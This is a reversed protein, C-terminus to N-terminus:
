VTKVGYVAMTAIDGVQGAAWVGVLHQGRTIDISTDTSDFSGDYTVDLKNNPSSDVYMYFTPIPPSGPRNTSVVVKTINWNSPGANPGISVQGGGSSNLTVSVSANLNVSDSM